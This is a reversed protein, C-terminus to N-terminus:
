SPEWGPPAPPFERRDLERKGELVELVRELRTRAPSTTTGALASRAAEALGTADKGDRLAVLLDDVRAAARVFAAANARRQEDTAGFMGCFLDRDLQDDLTM